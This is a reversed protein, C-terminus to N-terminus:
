AGVGSNIRTWRYGFSELHCVLGQPDLPEYRRDAFVDIAHGVADVHLDRLDTNTRSRTIPNLWIADVGLWELHDLRQRIARLDGIGDGISDAWSRPYIQYM